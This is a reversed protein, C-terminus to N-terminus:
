RRWAKEAGSCSPGERRALCLDDRRCRRDLATGGRRALAVDVAVGTDQIASPNAHWGRIEVFADGEEGGLIGALSARHVDLPADHVPRSHEDWVGVLPQV